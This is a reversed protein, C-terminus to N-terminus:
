EDYGSDEPDPPAAAPEETEGDTGVFTVGVGVTEANMAQVAAEILIKIQEDTLKLGFEKIIQKALEFKREGAGQERIIQEAARVATEAITRWLENKSESLISRILPVAYRAVVTIIVTLAVELLLFLIDRM